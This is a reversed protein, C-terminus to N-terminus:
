LLNISKKIFELSHCFLIVLLPFKSFDCPPLEFQSTIIKFYSNKVNFASLMLKIYLINKQTWLMNKEIHIFHLTLTTLLTLLISYSSFIHCLCHGHNLERVLYLYKATNSKGGEFLFGVFKVFIVSALTDTPRM